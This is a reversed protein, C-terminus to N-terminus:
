FGHYVASGTGMSQFEVLKIQMAAIGLCLILFILGLNRDQSYFWSSTLLLDIPGKRRHDWIGNGGPFPVVITASVHSSPAPFFAIYQM